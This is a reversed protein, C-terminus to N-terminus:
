TRPRVPIGQLTRRVRDDIDMTPGETLTRRRGIGRDPPRITVRFGYRALDDLSLGM